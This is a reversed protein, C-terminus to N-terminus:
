TVLREVAVKWSGTWDAVKEKKELRWDCMM